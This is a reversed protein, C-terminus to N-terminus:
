SIRDGREGEMAQLQRGVQRWEKMWKRQGHLEEHVKPAGGIGRASLAVLQIALTHCDDTDHRTTRHFKCWAKSQLDLVRSTVNLPCLQKCVEEDKLIESLATNFNPM